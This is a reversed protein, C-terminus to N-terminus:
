DASTAGQTTDMTKWGHKALLADALMRQSTRQQAAM